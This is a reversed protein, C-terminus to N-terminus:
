NLNLEMKMIYVLNIEERLDTEYESGPIIYIKGGGVNVSSVIGAENPTTTINLSASLKIDGVAPVEISPITTSSVSEKDLKDKLSYLLFYDLDIYQKEPSIDEFNLTRVEEILVEVLFTITKFQRNEIVRVSVPSQIENEINQVPVIM